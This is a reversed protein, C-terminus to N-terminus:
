KKLKLKIFALPLLLYSLPSAKLTNNKLQQDKRKLARMLILTTIRCRQRFSLPKCQGNIVLGAYYCYIDQVRHVGKRLSSQIMGNELSRYCATQEPLWIFDGMLGAALTTGYDMNHPCNRFTDSRLVECRYMTTLTMVYNGYRLLTPLNDGSHSRGPFVKIRSISIPKNEGDVVRFNTYVMMAQPNADLADAQKQLKHEDTWYDDGECFALYKVGSVMKQYHIKVPKKMSYHNYKLLYVAFSCNKNEKHRALTMYYDDTEEISEDTFHDCLYQKIVEQEGDKSDDDVIVCLFPFDTQQRCFGDLTATIYPAHNFTVCRVWVKFRTSLEQKPLRGQPGLPPNLTSLNSSFELM